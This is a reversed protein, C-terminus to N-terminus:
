DRENIFKKSTVSDVRSRSRAGPVPNGERDWYALGIFHKTSLESYKLMYCSSFLLYPCKRIGDRGFKLPVKVEHM